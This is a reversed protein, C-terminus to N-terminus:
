VWHTSWIQKECGILLRFFQICFSFCFFLFFFLCFKSKYTWPKSRIRQVFFGTGNLLFSYYTASIWIQNRKRIVGIRKVGLQISSSNVKDEGPFPLVLVLGWRVKVLPFLGLHKLNQPQGTQTQFTDSLHRFPIQLTDIPHSQPTQPTDITQGSSILGWDILWVGLNTVQTTDYITSSLYSYKQRHKLYLLHSVIKPTNLYELINQRSYLCCVLIKM